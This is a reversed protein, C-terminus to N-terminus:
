LGVVFVVFGLFLFGFRCFVVLCFGLHFCSCSLAIGALIFNMQSVSRQMSQVPQTVAHLVSFSVGHPTLRRRTTVIASPPGPSCEIETAQMCQVSAGHMATHGTSQM